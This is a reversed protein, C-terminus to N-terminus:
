SVMLILIFALNDNYMDRTHLFTLFRGFVLSSLYDFQTKNYFPLFQFSDTKRTENSTIRLIKLWEHIIYPWPKVNGDRIVRSLLVLTYETPGVQYTKKKKVEAGAYIRYGSSNSVPRLAYGLDPEKRVSRVGPLEKIIFIFLRTTIPISIASRMSRSETLKVLFVCWRSLPYTNLFLLLINWANLAKTQVHPSISIFDVMKFKRRM